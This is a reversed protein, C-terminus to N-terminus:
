HSTVTKGTVPRSESEENSETEAEELKAEAEVEIESNPELNTEDEPKSLTDAPQAEGEEIDSGGRSTSAPEGNSSEATATQQEQEAKKKSWEEVRKAADENIKRIKNVRDDGLVQYASALFDDASMMDSRCIPCDIHRKDVWEMFCSLHFMHGCTRGIVVKEGEEYKGLCISCDGGGEEVDEHQHRKSTKKSGSEQANKEEDEEDANEDKDGDDDQQAPTDATEPFEDEASKRAKNISEKESNVIKGKESDLTENGGAETTSREAQKVQDTGNSPEEHDNHGEEIDELQEKVGSTDTSDIVIDEAEDGTSALTEVKSADNGTAKKHAQINHFNVYPFSSANFHFKIVSRQEDKLLGALGVQRLLAPAVRREELESPTLLDEGSSRDFCWSIFYVLLVTASLIAAGSVFFLAGTFFSEAM